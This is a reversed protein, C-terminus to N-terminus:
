SNMIPSSTLASGAPARTETWALMGLLAVMGLTSIQISSATALLSSFAPAAFLLLCLAVVPDPRRRPATPKALQMGALLALPVALLLLDYTLLHPSILVTALVLAAWGLDPPSRKWCWLTLALVVVSAGATLVALLPGAAGLLRWFGRLSHVEAPFGQVLGPDFALTRLVDVWALTTGLGAALVGVGLHAAGGLALGGLLRWERSLAWIAAAPLVLNPKYSALGIVLGAVWPRGQRHAAVSAAFLATTLPSLQGYRLAAFLGPAALALLLATGRHARLPPCAQILAAMGAFYALTTVVSFVAWSELFPLRSLPGLLWAATPGYNPHLGEMELQPHVRAKAVAAHADADFLAPWRADAGIVGTVYLRSYDSAKLRGSRDILGPSALDVGHIVASVALLALAAIAIKQAPTAPSSV